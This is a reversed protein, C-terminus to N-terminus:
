KVSIRVPQAPVKVRVGDATGLWWGELMYDGPALPLTRAYNLRGRTPLQDTRIDQACLHPSAAAPPYVVERTGVKLVRVLPALACDQGSDRVLALQLAQGLSSNLVLQVNVRGASAGPMLALQATVGDLKGPLVLSTPVNVPGPSTPEAAPIDVPGAASDTAPLTDPIITQTSTTGAAQALVPHALAPSTALALAGLLAAASRFLPISM